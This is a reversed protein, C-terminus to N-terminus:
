TKLYLVNISLFKLRKMLNKLKIFHRDKMARSVVLKKRLSKEQPERKKKTKKARSPPLSSNSSNTGIRELLLQVLLLIVQMANATSESMNKDNILLSKAKEIAEEVHISDITM